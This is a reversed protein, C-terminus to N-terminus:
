ASEEAIRHRTEYSVYTIQRNENKLRKFHLEPSFLPVSDGFREPWEILALCEPDQLIEAFRDLDLHSPDVLRYGDLHYLTTEPLGYVNELSFSPSRVRGEWGLAHAFGRVWETKGAGLEGCLRVALPPKLIRSLRSALDHTDQVSQSEMVHRHKSYSTRETIVEDVREDHPEVPIESVMQCEFALALRPVSPSVESLLRDFYGRGQGLRNGVPDFGLGPLVLLDIDTLPIRTGPNSPPELIGMESKVLHNLSDEIRHFEIRDPSLVRPLLIPLKKSVRDQILSLTEVESGASFSLAPNQAVSYAPHGRLRDLIALSKKGRVLAPISKRKARLTARLEEKTQPNM